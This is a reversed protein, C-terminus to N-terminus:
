LSVLENRYMPMVVGNDFEIRLMGPEDMTGTLINGKTGIPLFDRDLTKVLEVRKYGPTGISVDLSGSPVM